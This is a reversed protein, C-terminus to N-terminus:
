FQTVQQTIKSHITTTEKTSFDKKGQSYNIPCFIGLFSGNRKTENASIATDPM